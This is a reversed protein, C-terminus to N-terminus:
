FTNRYELLAQVLKGDNAESLYKFKKSIENKKLKSINVNSLNERIIQKNQSFLKIHETKPSKKCRMIQLMISFVVQHCKLTQTSMFKLQEISNKKSSLDDLEVRHFAINRILNKIQIPKEEVINNSENDSKSTSGSNSDSFDTDTESESDSSSATSKSAIYDKELTESKSELVDKETKNNEM